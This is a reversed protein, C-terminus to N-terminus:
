TLTEKLLTDLSSIGKKVEELREQPGFTACYFKRPQNEILLQFKKVYEFNKDMLVLRENMQVEEDVLRQFFELNSDIRSGIEREFYKPDLIDWYHDELIIGTESYLVVYRCKFEKIISEFKQDVEELDVVKNMAYSFAKSLSSINYYSTNFFKFTFDTNQALILSKVMKVREEFQKNDLFEPDYKHFCVIIDNQYDIERFINLIEYLYDVSANLNFEDQIDILYYLSNTEEFYITKNVYMQRYKAQGGMDWIDITRGLLDFSQYDIKVTPRLNEVTELFNYKRRLAILFSTKGANDLGSFILKFKDM